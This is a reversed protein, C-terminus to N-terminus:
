PTQVEALGLLRRFVYAIYHGSFTDADDSAFEKLIDDIPTDMAVTLTGFSRRATPKVTEDPASPLGILEPRKIAKFDHLFYSAYDKFPDNPYKKILQRLVIRDKIPLVYAEGLVHTWFSWKQSLYASGCPLFNDALVRRRTVSRKPQRLRM